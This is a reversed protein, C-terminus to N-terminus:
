EQNLFHLTFTAGQGIESKVSVYGGHAKMVADVISLGLGSGEGSNRVRSPDARYFREFIRDQDAKSLGPGKDSVAITTESVGQMATISIETGNPTHARANALLNAIVQHIRQSDGLVFIESAELKIEIPHNPGAARASAVAETILTNLDVPEKALERSQDLRALLLLDEVLSSMRVSEKEIRNILEKTKVEGVVAGQRHLEAFGRIATLPTRLEHSADAVFRRLKNESEVRATFSEEIRALMTNLSTTLRGVETDPKAAPLRASLDGAAIAEATDEVAELPKLGLAIIWRAAMAITILAILGLILFLFRLQSLTKDVKELSDAVIVSGMGTPLMQALARIDPQGDKGEITFPRNKYQSVEDIKMGTVAFNKGGLEGGVQGILNGDIDLLTISTATPVGRLPELIKFPSNKDDAELPAIGARDLRNLSTSSINILQDDVQSILYTRLAANAAFDSAIIAFSALVVSALILRNRLSWLSLPTRVRSLPSNM